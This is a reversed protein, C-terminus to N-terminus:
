ESPDPWWTLRRLIFSVNTKTVGFERGLAAGTEGSAARRRIERVDHWSLKARNCTEPRAHTGHKRRDAQNDAKTKWTLHRWNYCARVGCEHAADHRPPRPGHVLTCVLQPVTSIGPFAKMAFEGYGHGGFRGRWIRCEETDSLLSLLVLM